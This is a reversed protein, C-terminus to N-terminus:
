YRFFGKDSQELLFMFVKDMADFIPILFLIWKDSKEYIENSIKSNDYQIDTMKITMTM